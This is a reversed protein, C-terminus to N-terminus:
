RISDRALKLIKERKNRLIETFTLDVMVKGDASTVVVGGLEDMGKQVMTLPLGTEKFKQIDKPDVYAISGPGLARHADEIKRMLFDYYMSSGRFKSISETLKSLYDNEIEEISRELKMRGELTSSSIMRKRLADTDEAARRNFSSSIAEVEKQAESLIKQAEKQGESILTEEEKLTETEIRKLIEDLSM